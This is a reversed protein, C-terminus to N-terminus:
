YVLYNGTDYNRTDKASLRIFITNYRKLNAKKGEEFPDKTNCQNFNWECLLDMNVIWLKM